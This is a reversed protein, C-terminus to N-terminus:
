EFEITLTPKDAIDYLCKVVSPIEGTIRKFFHMLVEYPVERAKATVADESDVM